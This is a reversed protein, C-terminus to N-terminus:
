FIIGYSALGRAWNLKLQGYSSIKKYFNSVDPTLVKNESINKIALDRLDYSLAMLAESFDVKEGIRNKFNIFIKREADTIKEDVIFNYVENMIKEETIDEKM